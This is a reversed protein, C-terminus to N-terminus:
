RQQTATSLSRVKLRFHSRIITVTLQSNTVMTIRHVRNFTIVVQSNIIFHAGYDDSNLVGCPIDIMKCDNSIVVSKNSQPVVSEYVPHRLLVGPCVHGNRKFKVLM